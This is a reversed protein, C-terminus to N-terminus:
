NGASPFQGCLDPNFPAGAGILPVDILEQDGSEDISLLYSVVDRVDQVTPQFTTSVSAHHAAFTTHFLEELTRANGAHFYSGATAMGVLSPINFGSRGGPLEDGYSRPTGAPAGAPPDRLVRRIEQIPPAGPAVRGEFNPAPPNAPDVVMPQTPFTGVARLACNIQDTLGRFSPAYDAPKGYLYTIIDAPSVDKPPSSRFSAMGQSAPPNLLRFEVAPIQYEAVRLTGLLKERAAIADPEPPKVFPLEGNKALDAAAYFM